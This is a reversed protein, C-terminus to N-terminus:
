DAVEIVRTEAMRDGLRRGAKDTLVLVVETVGLILAALGFVPVFFAGFFSIALMLQALGGLAFMWNRKASLLLTMPSGDLTVPRLKMVKKGVSRRDMFEFELGDRFLWYGGALLGGIAPILGLVIGIVADILGAAIRKGLDAKAVTTTASTATSSSTTTLDEQV